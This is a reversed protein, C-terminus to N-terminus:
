PQPFVALVGTYAHFFNEQGIPAFEGNGFFGILPWEGARERILAVDHGPAGYLGQGRGACNFYLGFAPKRGALLPGLRSLVRELDEHAAQADRIQFQITQGAFVPGALTLTGGEQDLGVLSRIAFDGRELPSKTPDVALGAFVGARPVRAQYDPVTEIAERLIEVPRRGAISHIVRGVADTVVFPEGIPQCGQGIGVLPKVPIALGPLAGHAVETGYLEFVPMGAAVGGVVAVPDLRASLGLLLDDPSLNAADPLLVLCGDEAGVFGTRRLIEAGADSDLMDREAVLFPRIPTGGTRVVMVAVAPGEEAEGRETLVGAGSCGVVSEADTVRRVAGVLERAQRYVDATVFVLALEARDLGSSEMAARSAELAAAEAPQGVALGSGAVIM